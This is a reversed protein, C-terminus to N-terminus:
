GTLCIHRGDTPLSGCAFFFLTTLVREM